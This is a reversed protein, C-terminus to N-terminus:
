DTLILESRAIECSQAGAFMYWRCPQGYKKSVNGDGVLFLYGEIGQRKPTGNMGGSLDM